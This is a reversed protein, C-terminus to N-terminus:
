DRIVFKRGFYFLIAVLLATVIMGVMSQKGSEDLFKPVIGALKEQSFGSFALLAAVGALLAQMQDDTLNMPNKSQVVPKQPAVPMQQVYAPNPGMMFRPDPSGGAPPLFDEGPMMIDSLPTSDMEKPKGKNKEPVNKEFEVEPKYVLSAGSSAGAPESQKGKGSMAFLPTMSDGSDSLNMTEMTSSVFNKHIVFNRTAFFITYM